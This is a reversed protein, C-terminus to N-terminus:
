LDRRFRLVHHSTTVDLETIAALKERERLRGCRYTSAALDQLARADFRRRERALPREVLDFRGAVEALVAESRDVADATGLVERRLEVLDDEAPVAVVYSGDPALVRLVEEANRRGDISTVLALSADRFPLRRDANAVIWHIHPHRRAAADIAHVSIDVGHGVLGFREVLAAIHTGEGCGLDAAAGHAAPHAHGIIEILAATLAGGGGGDFLARRAVVAERSDGPSLSRRDQPQLLNVYGSKAVDFAHGRACTIVGHRASTAVEDRADGDAGKARELPLACGRVTCALIM